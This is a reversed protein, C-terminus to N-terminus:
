NELDGVATVVLGHKIREVKSENLALWTISGITGPIFLFRYSYRLPRDLLHKAIFTSLAVGSLNDNCLSPHCIHCSVLIEDTSEGPLYCEGYTLHGEKLSTNIYVEYDDEELAALQIQSICFGWNENYYSTRYPVWDPHDPLTFLHERLETLSVKKHVPVSYNLIHLSSKQFDIVKVGDSNKVYADIINWEKPVVWDFM